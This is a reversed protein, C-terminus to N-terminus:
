GCHAEAPDLPELKLLTQWSSQPWRNRNRKRRWLWGGTSNRSCPESGLVSAMPVYPPWDKAEASLEMLRLFVPYADDSMGALTELTRREDTFEKLERHAQALMVYANPGGGVHRPFLKILKRCPEKASEWEKRNIARTAQQTLVYFNKPHRKALDAISSRLAAAEPKSWDLEPALAQAKARAYKEFAVELKAMPETHKAIAANIETGDGLETLIKRIVGIGFREVLHEVM